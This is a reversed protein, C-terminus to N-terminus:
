SDTADLRRINATAIRAGQIDILTLAPKMRGRRNAKSRSRRQRWYM